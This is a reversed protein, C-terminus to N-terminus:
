LRGWKLDRNKQNNVAWANLVAPDRNWEIMQETKGKTQVYPSAWNGIARWYRVTRQTTQRTEPDLVTIREPRGDIYNRWRHGSRNLYVTGM